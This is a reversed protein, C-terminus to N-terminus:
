KEFCRTRLNQLPRVFSRVPLSHSAESQWDSRAAPAYGPNENAPSIGGKEREEGGRRRGQGEKGKRGGDQKEMDGKWERRGM